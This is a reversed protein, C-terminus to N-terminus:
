KEIVVVVVVVVVLFAINARARKFRLCKTFLLLFVGCLM